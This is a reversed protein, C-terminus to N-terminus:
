LETSLAAFRRADPGDGVITATVPQTAALEKIARLLVDVGKLDRLEGVFLLDTASTCPMHPEFDANSLGNPIVREALARSPVRDRFDRATSASEFAIAGTVRALGAELAMFARGKVSGPAFHVTGGHPTYISAVRHTGVTLG